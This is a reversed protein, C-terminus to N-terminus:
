RRRAPPTRRARQAQDALQDFLALAEQPGAAQHDAGLATAVTPDTVARGGVVVPAIGADHLTEVTAAVAMENDALTATVGVAVLRDAGLAAEVFSVAPTHGGLQVVHLGRGRLLDAFLATPLSHHDGTPAGLVVTGRPRGPRSFLPGLRGVLREMLASAQHEQAVSLQGSDWRDGIDRMAPGLVQLYLQAPELGGALARQTVQWAGAEDGVQLCGVLRQTHDARGRAARGRGRGAPHAPPDAFRDLDRQAVQWQTGEKRAPLLGTRVYRYATMYHVGLQDAAEVLTLTARRTSAM